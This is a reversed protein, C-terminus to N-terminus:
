SVSWPYLSNLRFYSNFSPFSLTSGLTFYFWWPVNNESPKGNFVSITIARFTALRPYTLFKPTWDLIPNCFWSFMTQYLTLTEDWGFIYLTGWELPLSIGLGRSKFTSASSFHDLTPLPPPPPLDIRLCCLLRCYLRREDTGAALPTRAPLWLELPPWKLNELVTLSTRNEPLLSAKLHSARMCVALCIKHRWSWWLCLLM